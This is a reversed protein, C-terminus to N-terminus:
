LNDHSYKSRFALNNLWMWIAMTLALMMGFITGMGFGLIFDITNLSPIM